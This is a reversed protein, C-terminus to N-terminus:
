GQLDAGEGSCRFGQILAFENEEIMTYNWLLINTDNMSISKQNRHNGHDMTEQSLQILNMDGEISACIDM